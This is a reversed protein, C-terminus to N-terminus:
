RFGALQAHFLLRRAAATADFRKGDGPVLEGHDSGPWPDPPDNQNSVVWHADPWNAGECYLWVTCAGDRLNQNLEVLWGRLTNQDPLPPLRKYRDSTAKIAAETIRKTDNNLM